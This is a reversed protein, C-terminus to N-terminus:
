WAGIGPDDPAKKEPAKQPQKADARKAALDRFAQWAKLADPTAPERLEERVALSSHESAINWLGDEEVYIWLYRFPPYVQAKKGSGVRQVVNAAVWGSKGDPALRARLNGEVKWSFGGKKIAPVQPKVLEKFAAGTEIIETPSTGVQVFDAREATRDVKVGYDDLIRRTLGVLQDSNPGRENTVDTPPLLKKAADPASLMADPVALSVHLADIKWGEDEKIAHGTIRPLWTAKEGKHKTEVRPLDYFWSSREGAALAVVLRSDEIKLTDGALGIPLLAQRAKELVTDRFNWTDSPGLGFVMADATILPLLKDAEGGEVAGYVNKVLARVGDAPDVPKVEVARKPPAKACAALLVVSAVLGWRVGTM